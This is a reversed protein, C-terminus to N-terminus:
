TRRQEGAKMGLLDPQPDQGVVVPRSPVRAAEGFAADREGLDEAAPVKGGPQDALPV